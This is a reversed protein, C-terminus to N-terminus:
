FQVNIRATYYRRPGTTLLTNPTDGQSYNAEPDEGTYKTWVKLNRAGLSLSVNEARVYRQVYQQPLEITASLERFRWFRGNEYYGISTRQTTYNAAVTRAQRWLPSNPDSKESCTVTQVCLFSFTSVQQTHGGRHDFSANIRLRRRLLDVGTIVSAQDPAFASGVYATDGVAVIVESPAIIGDNNADSYTYPVLWFSNLPYGAMQRTTTGITPIPNGNEDEGLTVLKNVNHSASVTVDWALQERDLLQTTLLAEVGANKVSGLNKLVSNASAGASTAINQNILADTTMKSYYTFELRARRYWGELDFGAEFETTLEPKLKANGIASAQLAPQDSVISVTTPNFTRLAATAGPQVGSSGYATRLRLADLYPISPFFDEESTAWSVQLKPYAVSAYKTGFATNQDTRVAGTIWLRDRWAFQEQLYYGLTKTASPLTNSADKVAGSNVTQGGPSLQTASANSGDEQDNIYDGGVTTRFNGSPFAQWTATSRLNATLIRNNNHNDSISGQRQTGFNPCEALRCLLMNRRAYFDVGVTGDNQLWARPRWSATAGGVMRKIGETSTRQFIHAPTFQAWGNLPQGLNGVGTYGLGSHRYGPNTLANYYFSNVNNDVQPLRQESRLFVTSVSLDFNPSVAANLNARFSGRDFREPRTWEDRAEINLSDLFRRDVQPMKVPGTEGELTGSVFYRVADSGGSVQMTHLQRNGTAIPSIGPERLMHATTLSDRVCTGDAITILVCRIATAPDAPTHGWIAYTKEYNNKDQITGTESSWNWRAKGSRGKKTTIVIVGNAANTGYLTAASPGRVVEIDQIEEPTIDNLRSSTTGGVNLSGQNADFRVGDVVFIPANSRTVSNLGRIRITHGGGSMNNPLVTLGPAKAVLLEGMNHVPTERVRNAAEIHGISNGVEVRREEGTATVVVDPLAQIATVLVFDATTEANNTVAVDARAGEYGLRNVRVVVNGQPVNRLIFRGDANTNTQLTLGVVWVRADGLPAGNTRSTVRGHISGQASAATLATANLAVAMLVSRWRLGVYTTM